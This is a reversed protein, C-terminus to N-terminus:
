GRMAALNTSARPITGVAGSQYSAPAGGMGAVQGESRM